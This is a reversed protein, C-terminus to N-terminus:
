KLFRDIAAKIYSIDVAISAMQVQSIVQQNKITEIQVAQAEVQKEVQDIRYGYISFTTIVGVGAIILSWANKSLWEAMLM